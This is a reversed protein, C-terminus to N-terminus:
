REVTHQESFQAKFLFLFFSFFLLLDLEEKKKKQIHPLTDLQLQHHFVLHWLCVPPLTLRSSTTTTILLWCALIDCLHLLLSFFFHLLIYLSALRARPHHQQRHHEPTPLKIAYFLRQQNSQIHLLRGRRRNRRGLKIAICGSLCFCPLLFFSVYICLLFVCLYQKNSNAM